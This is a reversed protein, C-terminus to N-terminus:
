LWNRRWAWLYDVLDTDSTGVVVAPQHVLRAERRALRPLDEFLTVSLVARPEDGGRRAGDPRPGATRRRPRGDERVVPRLAAARHADEVPRQAEASNQPRRGGRLVGDRDHRGRRDRSG